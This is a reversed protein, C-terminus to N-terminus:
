SKDVGAIAKLIDLKQEATLEHHQIAVVVMNTLDDIAVEPCARAVSEERRMAISRTKEPDWTSMGVVVKAKPDNWAAESYQIEM